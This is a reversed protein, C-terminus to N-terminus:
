AGDGKCYHEGNPLHGKSQFALEKPWKVLSNWWMGSDCGWRGVKPGPVWPEAGRSGM